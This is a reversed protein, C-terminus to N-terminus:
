KIPIGRALDSVRGGLGMTQRALMKKLPPLFDLATLAMDRAVQVPFLPNSFIRVLGDTFAIASNHDRQRWEAYQKLVQLDGIDSHDQVARALVQTLAAVDRIGLNYGQGAVPHLTHAANGILAVRSQVQEPVRLLRLPYAHREGIRVFKGLRHGFRQQLRDLFAQDSLDLHEDVQEDRVTWVLSCRQIDHGQENLSRMPLLALPGSDTFREYAVQQHPRSTSVNSIVATQGYDWAKVQLKLQERIVSQSGDAAVVLSATLCRSQQGERIQIEAREEGINVQEVEAPSILEVHQHKELSAQLVKGLDRAAVVYGLADVGVQESDLRTAGFHGRDSIHIKRIPMVTNALTDWLGMTQFIKRTGYALAISRDDFSSQSSSKFPYREVIGVKLALPALACALSAGVMGGGIILIDYDTKTEATDPASAM